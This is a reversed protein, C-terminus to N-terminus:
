ALERGVAKGARAWATHDIMANASNPTIGQLLEAATYRRRRARKAPTMVLEGDCVEMSVVEGIKLNLTKLVSSPVTVVATGGQQRIQTLPM